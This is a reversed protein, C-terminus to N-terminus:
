KKTLAVHFGMGDLIMEPYSTVDFNRDHSPLSKKELLQFKEIGYRDVKRNFKSVLDNLRAHVETSFLFQNLRTYNIWQKGFKEQYERSLNRTLDGYYFPSKFYLSRMRSPDFDEQLKPFLMKLRQLVLDFNIPQKHVIHLGFSSDATRENVLVRFDATDEGAAWGYVYRRAYFGPLDNKAGHGKVVFIEEAPTSVTKQTKVAPENKCSFCITILFTLTLLAKSSQLNM